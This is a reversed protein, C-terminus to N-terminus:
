LIEYDCPFRGRDRDEVYGFAEYTLDVIRGPTFPGRDNITVEVTKGNDLNRVRIKTGCPLTKHAAKMAFRDFGEGCATPWGQPIEGEAGYWSCEGTEGHVAAISITLVFATLLIPKM